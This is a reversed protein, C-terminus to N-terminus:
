QSVRGGFILYIMELQGKMHRINMEAEKLRCHLETNEARLKEREPILKDLEHKLAENEAVLSVAKEEPYYPM